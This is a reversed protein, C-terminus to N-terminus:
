CCFNANLDKSLNQEETTRNLMAALKGVTVLCHQQQNQNLFEIFLSDESVVSRWLKTKEINPQEDNITTWGTNASRQGHHQIKQTASGM